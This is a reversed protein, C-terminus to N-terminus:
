RRNRKGAKGAGAKKRKGKGVVRKAKARGVKKPSARKRGSGTRSGGAKKARKAKTSPTKVQRPKRREEAVLQAATPTSSLGPMAESAEITVRDLARSTEGRPTGRDPEDYPPDPQRVTM